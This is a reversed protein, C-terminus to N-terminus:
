FFVHKTPNAKTKKPHIILKPTYQTHLIIQNTNFTSKIKDAACNITYQLINDFLHNKSIQDILNHTLIKSSIYAYRM